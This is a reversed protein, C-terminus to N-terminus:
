IGKNGAVQQQGAMIVIKWTSSDPRSVTIEYGKKELALPIDRVSPPNDLVVELVDEASLNSLAKTVLIQPYPCTLGRVDLLYLREDTKEPRFRREDSPV